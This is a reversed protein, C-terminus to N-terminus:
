PTSVPPYLKALERYLNGPSYWWPKQTLPIGGILLITAVVRSCDQRDAKHLGAPVILSGVIDEWDYAEGVLSLAYPRMKAEAAAVVPVRIIDWNNLFDAGQPVTAPDRFRVHMAGDTACSFWSGDTFILECHSYRSGTWWRICADVINGFWSGGPGKYFACRVNPTIFEPMIAVLILFL